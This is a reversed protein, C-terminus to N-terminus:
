GKIMSKLQWIYKDHIEVRQALFNLIGQQNLEECLSICVLIQNKLIMNDELLISLMKNSDPIKLQDEILSLELYRGLSGPSYADLTRIKEAIDDVSSWIDEYLTKFFEHFQQFNIGEVNWHFFHSKLYLSFTSALLVKLQQILDLM